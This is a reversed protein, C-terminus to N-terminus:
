YVVGKLNVTRGKKASRIKPGSRRRTGSLRRLKKSSNAYEQRLRIQKESPDKPQRNSEMIEVHIELPDTSLNYLKGERLISQLHSLIQQRNQNGFRRGFRTM